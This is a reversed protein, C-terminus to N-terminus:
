SRFSEIVYFEITLIEMKENLLPEAYIHTITRLNKAVKKNSEQFNLYLMHKM